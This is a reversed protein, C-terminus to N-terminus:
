HRTAHGLPHISWSFPSAGLNKLMDAVDDRGVSGEGGRDLLQYGERLERVQATSLKSLADGNTTPKSSLAASLKGSAYPNTPNTSGGRLRTPSSPLSTPRHPQPDIVPTTLGRPPTNFTIPTPKTPSLSHTRQHSPTLPLTKTPSSPTPTTARGAPSPSAPSEPRRFPSSRPSGFSLPSPKYSTSM